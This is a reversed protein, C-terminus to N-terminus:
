ISVCMYVSVTPGVRDTYNSLVGVFTEGHHCVLFLCIRSVQIELIRTPFWRTPSSTPVQRPYWTYLAGLM